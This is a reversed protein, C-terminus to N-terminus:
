DGPAPEGDADVTVRLRRVTRVTADLVDFRVNAWRCTEGKAPIHGLQASVFGTVTDYSEDEPVEIDLAHNLDDIPLRGDCELTHADIQRLPEPEEADYEDEIEGVIEEVIDELTCIGATGGYEDLVVAIHTKQARLERLLEHVMKTEPVFYPKQAVDRAKADRNDRELLDKVHVIGVINDRTGEFVPIRSFGCKLALTRLEDVTADAEICVMDTRPTMIEAVDDDHLELVSAIMEREEEEITGNREGDSVVSRIEDSVEVGEPRTMPVGAVRGVLATIAGLVATLPRVAIEVAQIVPFVLNLWRDANGQGWARPIAEGLVLVFLLSWGLAILVQVATHEPKLLAQTLLIVFLINGVANLAFCALQYRHRREIHARLRERQADDAALDDLGARSFHTLASDTISFVISALLCAGLGALTAPDM